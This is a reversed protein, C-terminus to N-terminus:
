PAALPVPQGDRVTFTTRLVEHRREIERLAAELAADDLPGDIRQATPVNYAPGPELQELFWLREQAFSCPLPDRGRPLPVIAPPDSSAMHRAPLAFPPGARPM